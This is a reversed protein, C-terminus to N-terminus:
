LRLTRKVNNRTRLLREKIANRGGMAQICINLIFVRPLFGMNPTNNNKFRM